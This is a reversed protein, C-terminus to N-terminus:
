CQRKQWPSIAFHSFCFTLKDLYLYCFPFFLLHFMTLTHWKDLCLNSFLFFLLHFLFFFIVVRGQGGDGGGRVENVWLSCALVYAAHACAISAQMPHCVLSMIAPPEFPKNGQRPLLNRREHQCFTKNEEPMLWFSRASSLGLLRRFADPLTTVHRSPQIAKFRLGRLLANNAKHQM